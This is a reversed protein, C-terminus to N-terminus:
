ASRPRPIRIVSRPVTLRVGSNRPTGHKVTTIAPVRLLPPGTSPPAEIVAESPLGYAMTEGFVKDRVFQGATVTAGSAGAIAYELVCANCLAYRGHQASGSAPRPQQCADCYARASAPVGKMDDDKALQRAHARVKSYQDLSPLPMIAPIRRARGRLHLTRSGPTAGGPLPMIVLVPGEPLDRATLICGDLAEVAEASISLVPTGAHCLVEDTPAFLSLEIGYGGGSTTLRPAYPGARATQLRQLLAGARATLIIM